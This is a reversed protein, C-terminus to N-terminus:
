WGPTYTYDATVVGWPPNTFRIRDVGGEGGGALLVVDRPTTGDYVILTGPQIGRNPLDWEYTMGMADEGVYVRTRQRPFGRPGRRGRM